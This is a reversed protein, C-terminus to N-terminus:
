ILPNAIAGILRIGTFPENLSLKGPARTTAGQLKPRVKSTAVCNILKPKPGLSRAVLTSIEILLAKTEELSVLLTDNIALFSKRMWSVGSVTPSGNMGSGLESTNAVNTRPM